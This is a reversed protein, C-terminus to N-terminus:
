LLIILVAMLTIMIPLLKIARSKIKLADEPKKADVLRMIFVSSALNYLFLAYVGIMIKDALTLYGTTPIGSLMSLHFTTAALLTTVALTIRMTFNQPAIFLALLSIATIVSIPLVSKIFSSVFPKAITISFTFRSFTQDVYAHETVGTQYSGLNWGAVNASKETGSDPDPEYVLQTIDYSNHELQVPLIHSEFPYQSFDFSTIFDGKVRYELYSSNSDIETKIPSGNIFEFHRVDDLSIQSPDFSFWVYFDLRYSNGSLDVKEVNNLWAGVKVHIPTSAGTTTVDPTQSDVPGTILAFLSLFFLAFVATTVILHKHKQKIM